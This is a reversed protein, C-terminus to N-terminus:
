KTVEKALNDLLRFLGRATRVGYFDYIKHLHHDVAYRTLKLEAAIEVSTEAYSSKDLLLHLIRKQIPSLKEKARATGTASM